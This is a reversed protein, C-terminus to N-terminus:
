VGGSGRRIHAPPSDRRAGRGASWPEGMEDAHKVSGRTPPSLPVVEPGVTSYHAHSHEEVFLIRAASLQTTRSCGARWPCSACRSFSSTTTTAVPSGCRPCSDRSVFRPPHLGATHEAREHAENVAHPPVACHPGKGLGGVAASGLPCAETAPRPQPRGHDSHHSVCLLRHQHHDRHATPTPTATTTLTNRLLSLSLRAESPQTTSDPHSDIAGGRELFCQWLVACFVGLFESERKRSTTYRLRSAAAVDVRCSAAVPAINNVPLTHQLLTSHHHSPLPTGRTSKRRSAYAEQTAWCRAVFGAM